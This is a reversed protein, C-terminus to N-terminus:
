QKKIDKLESVLEKVTLKITEDSTMETKWGLTNAKDVNYEYFAVDGKWGISQDEYNIPIGTLGMENVVTSAIFRVNTCTTAGVNLIQIGTTTGALMMIARILETVHCYPKTQYGNGRVDLHDPTENLRLIFDRIVGHTMKGGIINSFRFILANFDNMHAFAYIYAESAMKAAGYYSIPFLKDDEKFGEGTQEGYIASTSSFFLDKVGKAKMANVLAKTTLFTNIHEIEPDRMSEWLDTNAALHFVFDIKYQEMVDELAKQDTADQNIFKFESNKMLPHINNENGRQLNDVCIVKMGKDLLAECLYCGIFGAGGTVMVNKM